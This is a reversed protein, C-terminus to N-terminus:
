LTAGGRSFPDAANFTSSISMDELLDIVYANDNIKKLIKCPCYVEQKEGKEFNRDATAGQM